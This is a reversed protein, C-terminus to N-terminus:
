RATLAEVADLMVQLDRRMGADIVLDAAGDVHVVADRAELVDRLVLRIGRLDPTRAIACGGARESRVPPSDWRRGDYVITFQEFAPVSCAMVTLALEARDAAVTGTYGLFPLGEREPRPAIQVRREADCAVAHRAFAATLVRRVHLPRADVFARVCPSWMEVDAIALERREVTPRRPVPLQPERRQRARIVSIEGLEPAEPPAAPPSPGPEAVALEHRPAPASTPRAPDAGHQAPASCAAVAFAVVAPKM